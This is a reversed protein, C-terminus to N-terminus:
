RQGKRVPARSSRSAPLSCGSSATHSAVQRVILPCPSQSRMPLQMDMSPEHGEGTPLALSSPEGTNIPIDISEGLQGMDRRRGLHSPSSRRDGLAVEWCRGCVDSM